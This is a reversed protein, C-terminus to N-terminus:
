CAEATLYLMRKEALEELQQSHVRAVERGTGGRRMRVWKGSFAEGAKTRDRLQKMIVEM